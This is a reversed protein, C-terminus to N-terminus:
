RRRGPNAAVRLAALVVALLSLGAPSPEAVPIAKWTIHMDDFGLKSTGAVRFEWSRIPDSSVAALFRAGARVEALSNAPPVTVSVEGLISDAAGYLCLLADTAGDNIYDADFVSVAVGYRWPWALDEMLWFRTSSPTRISFMPGGSVPADPNGINPETTFGFQFGQVRGVGAAQFDLETYVQMTDFPRFTPRWDKISHVQRIVGDCPVASLVWGSAVLGLWGCARATGRNSTRM